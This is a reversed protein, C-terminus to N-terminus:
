LYNDVKFEISMLDIHTRFYLSDASYSGQSDFEVTLYFDIDGPGDGFAQKLGIERSGKYGEPGPNINGSVLILEDSFFSWYAEGYIKMPLPQPSTSPFVAYDVKLHEKTCVNVRSYSDIEDRYTLYYAILTYVTRLDMGPFRQVIEEATEGRNFAFVLHELGIRHGRIRVDDPALVDLMPAIQLPEVPISVLGTM